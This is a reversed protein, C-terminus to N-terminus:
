WREMATNMEAVELIDGYSDRGSVRVECVQSAAALYSTRPERSAPSWCEPHGSISLHVEGQSSDPSRSVLMSMPMFPEVRCPVGGFSSASRRSPRLSPWLLRGVLLALVAFRDLRLSSYAESTSGSASPSAEANAARSTASSRAPATFGCTQVAGVSALHSPGLM